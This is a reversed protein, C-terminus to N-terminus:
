GDKREKAFEIGPVHVSEHREIIAPCMHQLPKKTNKLPNEERIDCSM